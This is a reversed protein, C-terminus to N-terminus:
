NDDGNDSNQYPIFLEGLDSQIGPDKLEDSEVDESIRVDSEEQESITNIINIVNNVTKMVRDRSDPDTLNSLSPTDSIVNNQNMINTANNVLVINSLSDDKLVSSIVANSREIMANINDIFMAYDRLKISGNDLEDDLKEAYSDELKQLMRTFKLVRTLEKKAQVLKFLQIQNLIMNRDILSETVLENTVDGQVILDLLNDENSTNSEVLNNEM